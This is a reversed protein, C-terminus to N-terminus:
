AAESKNIDQKFSYGRGYVSVIAEQFVGLKKRLHAVHTDVGRVEIHSGHAKWVLRVLDERTLPAGENRALALFIRFETPTLNLDTKQTNSVALCRQFESDFEFCSYTFIHEPSLNLKRLRADVRAKLESTQFPKTIYDDAGCNLGFVKDSVSAMATILIKPTNKLKEENALDSCVRFGDGDPLIIDIMILDFSDRKLVTKAEEASFAQSIEYPNLSVKILEGFDVSDDILLIRPLRPL